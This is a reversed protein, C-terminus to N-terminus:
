RLEQADVRHTEVIEAVLPGYSEPSLLRIKDLESEARTAAQARRKSTQEEERMWRALQYGDVRPM